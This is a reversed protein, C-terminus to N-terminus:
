VMRIGFGWDIEKSLSLNFCVIVLFSFKGMMEEVVGDSCVM